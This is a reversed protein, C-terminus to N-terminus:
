RHGSQTSKLARRLSQEWLQKLQLSYSRMVQQMMTTLETSLSTNVKSPITALTSGCSNYNGLRRAIDRYRLLWSHGISLIADVRCVSSEQLLWRLLPEASHVRHGVHESHLIRLPRTLTTPLARSVSYLMSWKYCLRREKPITRPGTQCLSIVVVQHPLTAVRGVMMISLWSAHERTTALIMAAALIRHVM